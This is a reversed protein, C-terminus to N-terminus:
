NPHTMAGKLTFPTWTNLKSGLLQHTKKLMQAM